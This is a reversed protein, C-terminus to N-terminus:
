FEIGNFRESLSALLSLSVSEMVPVTGTHTSRFSISCHPWGAAAHASGVDRGTGSGTCRSCCPTQWCWSGSPARSEACWRTGSESRPKRCSSGSSIHTSSVSYPPARVRHITTLLLPNIILSTSHWYPKHIQNHPLAQWQNAIIKSIHPYQLLHDCKQLPSHLQKVTQIHHKATQVLFFFIACLMVLM